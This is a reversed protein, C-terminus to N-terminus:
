TTFCHRFCLSLNASSSTSSMSCFSCSLFALLRAAAAFAFVAGPGLWSYFRATYDTLTLVLGTRDNRVSCWSCWFSIMDELSALSVKSGSDELLKSVINPHRVSTPLSVAKVGEEELPACASDLGVRSELSLLRGPVGGTSLSRAGGPGHGSGPLRCSPASSDGTASFPWWAAKPWADAPWSGRGPCM